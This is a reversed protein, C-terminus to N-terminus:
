NSLLGSPGMWSTVVECSVNAEYSLSSSVGFKNWLFLLVAAHLVMFPLNRGIAKNLEHPTSSNGEKLFLGEWSAYEYTATHFRSRRSIRSLGHGWYCNTVITNVLYYLFPIKNILHWIQHRENFGGSRKHWIVKNYLSFSLEWNREKIHNMVYSVKEGKKPWM